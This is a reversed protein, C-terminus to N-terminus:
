FILTSNILTLARSICKMIQIDGLGSCQTLTLNVPNKPKMISLACLFAPFLLIFTENKELQM